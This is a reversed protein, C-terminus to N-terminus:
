RRKRRAAIAAEAAARRAEPTDLSAPDLGAARGGEGDPVKPLSERDKKKRELLKQIARREIEAEYAEVEARYEAVAEEVTKGKAMRNIIDQLHPHQSGDPLPGLGNEALFESIRRKDAEEAEARQKEEWAKAALEKVKEPTLPEGNEDVKGEAPASAGGRSKVMEAVQRIGEGYFRELYALASQRTEDDGSILDVFANGIGPVLKTQVAEEFERRKVREAAGQRRLKKVYGADFQKVEGDEGDDEDDVELLDEDDDEDGGADDAGVSPLDGEDIEIDDLDVGLEDGGAEPEEVSADEVPAGGGGLGDDPAFLMTPFLSKLFPPM